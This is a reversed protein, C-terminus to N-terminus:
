RIQSGISLSSTRLARSVQGRAWGPDKTGVVHATDFHRSADNMRGLVESQRDEGTSGHNSGTRFPQNADHSALLLEPASARLPQATARSNHGQHQTSAM